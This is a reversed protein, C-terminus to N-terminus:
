ITDLRNNIEEFVVTELSLGQCTITNDVKKGLPHQPLNCTLVHLCQLVPFFCWHHKDLDDLLESIVDKVFFIFLTLIFM